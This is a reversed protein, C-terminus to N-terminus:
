SDLDPDILIGLGIIWLMSSLIIWCVAQWTENLGGAMSVFYVWMVLVFSARIKNGM